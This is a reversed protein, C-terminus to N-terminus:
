GFVASFLGAGADSISSSFSAEKQLAQQVQQVESPSLKLLQRIAPVMRQKEGSNTSTIWALVANKLYLLRMSSPADSQGQAETGHSSPRGQAQEGHGGLLEEERAAALRMDDVAGQLAAVRESQKQLQVRYSELEDQQEQIRQQAAAVHAKLAAEQNHAVAPAEASGEIRASSSSSGPQQPSSLAASVAAALTQSESAEDKRLSAKPAEPRPPEFPESSSRMESSGQDHHPTFTPQSSPMAALSTHLAKNEARLEIAEGLLARYRQEAAEREAASNDVEAQVRAREQAIAQKILAAHEKKLSSAQKVKANATGLADEAAEARAEAEALSAKLRPVERAQAELVVQAEQLSSTLAQAEDLEQQLAAARKSAAASEKADAGGRRIAAAARAKYSALEDRASQLSKRLSSADEQAGNLQQQLKERQTALVTACAANLTAGASLGSLMMGGVHDALSATSGQDGGIGQFDDCRVESVGVHRVSEGSLWPTGPPVVVVQHGEEAHEVVACTWVAECGSAVHVSVAEPHGDAGETGLEASLRPLAVSFLPAVWGPQAQVASLSAKLQVVRQAQKRLLEGAKELKKHADDLQEKAAAEAAEARAAVEEAEAAEAQAAALADAAQAAEEKAADVARERVAEEIEWKTRESEIRAQCQENAERLAQAAEAQQQAAAARTQELQAALERCQAAGADECEAVSEKAAVAASQSAALERQLDAASARAAELQAECVRLQEDRQALDATLKEMRGKLGRVGLLMEKAKGLKRKLDEVEQEAAGPLHEVSASRSALGGQGPPAEAPVAGQGSQAARLQEKLIKM